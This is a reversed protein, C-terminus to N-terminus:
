NGKIVKNNIEEAILSLPHPEFGNKECWEAFSEDEKKGLVNAMPLTIEKDSM